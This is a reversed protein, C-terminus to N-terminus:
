KLGALAEQVSQIMQAKQDKPMFSQEFAHIVLKDIDEVAFGFHAVAMIYEKSLTTGSVLTSDTNLTIPVGSEFFQKVPHESLNAVSKTQINSSLCVELGINHDIVYQWLAKDEYLHTGHGIREAHLIHVAQAISDATDVEGAHAIVHLGGKRAIEFPKQNDKAPYGLEKGALDFAVVGRNKYAVALEALAINQNVSFQRLGCVILGSKIPLTKEAAAKGRLVAEMVLPMDLGKKLHLAPSFRFEVYRINDKVCDELFEYTIRELAAATQMVSITYSFAKFYAVLSDCSEDNVVYPRLFSADYTPLKVGEQQAIDILTEIRLGGDLHTHLEAKPMKHIYDQINIM